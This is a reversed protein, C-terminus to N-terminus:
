NQKYIRQITRSLERFTRSNSKSLHSSGQYQKLQRQGSLLQRKQLLTHKREFRRPIKAVSGHDV